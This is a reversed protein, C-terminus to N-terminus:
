KPRTRKTYKSSGTITNKQSSSEERFARFLMRKMRRGIAYDVSNVFYAKSPIRLIHPRKPKTEAPFDRAAVRLNSNAKPPTKRKEFAWVEFPCVIGRQWSGM